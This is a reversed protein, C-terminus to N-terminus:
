PCTFGAPPIYPSVKKGNVTVNPNVVDFACGVSNISTANATSAATAANAATTAATAAATAAAANTGATTAATAAATAATSAANAATLAQGATTNATNAADKAGGARSIAVGSLAASTGGAAVSAVQWGIGAAGVVARSSGPAAARAARSPLSITKGKAVELASGNGEVRLAGEKATIVINDGVTAVEGLTKFGKSPVVTIDGVKIRLAVGEQPHYLSLNGHSLLVTVEDADRLFSAVTQRGFVMRSTEGIAVVAAGENVQLNDGSVITTNPLAALGGITANMSGAVSGIVASGALMPLATIMGLFLLFLTVEAKLNKSSM